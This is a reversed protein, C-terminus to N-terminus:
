TQDAAEGGSTDATAAKDAADIISKLNFLDSYDPEVGAVAAVYGEQGQVGVAPIAAVRDRTAKEIAKDVKGLKETLKKIEALRPKSWGAEGVPKGDLGFTSPRVDPQRAKNLEGSLKGHADVAELLAKARRDVERAKLQEVVSEAIAPAAALIRAAVTTQIISANM